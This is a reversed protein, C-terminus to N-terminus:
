VSDERLRLSCVLAPPRTVPRGQLHEKVEWRQGHRDTDTQRDAQRSTQRDMQRQTQRYRDTHSDTHTQTEGYQSSDTDIM